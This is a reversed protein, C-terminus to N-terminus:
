EAVLAKKSTKKGAADLVYFYTGQPV